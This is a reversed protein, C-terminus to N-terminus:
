RVFVDLPCQCSCGVGSIYPTINPPLTIEKKLFITMKKIPATRGTANKIPTLVKSIPFQSGFNPQMPVNEKTKLNLTKGIATIELIETNPAIIKNPINLFGIGVLLIRTKPAPISMLTKLM